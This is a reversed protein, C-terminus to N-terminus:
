KHNKDSNKRKKLSRAKLNNKIPKKDTMDVTLLLSKRRDYEHMYTSSTNFSFLTHLINQFIKFKMYELIRFM